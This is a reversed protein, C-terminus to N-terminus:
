RFHQVYSGRQSALRQVRDHAQAAAKAQCGTYLEEYIFTHVGEYTCSHQQAHTCFQHFALTFIIAKMAWFPPTPLVVSATLRATLALGLAASKSRSGCSLATM